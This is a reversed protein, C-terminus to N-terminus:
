AIASKPKADPARVYLATVPLNKNNKLTIWRRADPLIALAHAEPRFELLDMAASGAIIPATSARAAEEPSVSSIDSTSQGSGDFTQFFFEGHGGKMAVDVPCEGNAIAAVMATSSYGCCPVDWALALARAASIGVRIGTFSGPGVNVAIEDARGKEPLADIMPVLREAHGRGLHAYCSDIMREGDFLAVSCAPSATDIVLTKPM